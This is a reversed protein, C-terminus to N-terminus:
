KRTTMTAIGSRRAIGVRSGFRFLQDDINLQGQTSTLTTCTGDSLSQKVIGSPTMHLVSAGQHLKGRPTSWLPFTSDTSEVTQNQHVKGDLGILAYRAYDRGQYSTLIALLVSNASFYVAFDEITEDVHLGLDGVPHYQYRSGKANGHIVFWEWNRLARDYGFIVERDAGTNHDATFWSQRQHVETVHTDYVVGQPGFLDSRVLANSATRYLYRSSTDFVASEGELVGTSTGELRVLTSGSIRYLELKAPAPRTPEPCVVLCNAFFRYRAGPISPLATDLTAATGQENVRIVRTQSGVRCVLYLDKDLAQAFLLIGPAKFLEEIILNVLGTVEITTAEHCKPCTKRSSHYDTRCTKCTAIGQAFARLLAPDLPDELRRKLREVLAHLVEDSLVEPSGLMQPFTVGPDFITIGAKARNQLGKVTPHSGMRFPHAGPIALLSFAVLFAFRDHHPAPEVHTGGPTLNAYLDPHAFMETTALCPYGELGWSDTDVWARLLDNPDFMVCGLNVDGVVRGADHVLELDDFIGAFLTAIKSLGIQHSTRFSSDLLKILKDYGPPVRRMLYGIVKRLTPDHALRLPLTFQTPLSLPHACVAQLKRSRYAAIQLAERNAPDPPHFLKVCLDDDEPHKIVMGESGAGLKAQPDVLYTKGDLVYQTM